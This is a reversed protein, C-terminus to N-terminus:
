AAEVEDGSDISFEASRERRHNHPNVKTLSESSDHTRRM